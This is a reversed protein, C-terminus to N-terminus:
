GPPPSVRAQNDSAPKRLYFIAVSIVVTATPVLVLSVPLWASHPEILLGPIAGIGIAWVTWVVASFLNALEFRWRTMGAIAAVVAVPARLPGSFYAILIAVFGFREFLSRARAMLKPRAQQLRPGLYRGITFSASMGLAAGCPAWLAFHWSIVGAGTLVGMAGLIAGAPVVFNSGFLCGFFTVLFSLPGALSSNATIFATMQQVTSM